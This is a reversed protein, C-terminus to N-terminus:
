ALSMCPQCSATIVNEGGPCAWRRLRCFAGAYVLQYWCSNFWAQHGDEVACLMALAHEASGAHCSCVRQSHCSEAQRPRSSSASDAVLPLPLPSPRPAPHPTCVQLRARDEPTLPYTGAKLILAQRQLMNHERSMIQMFAKSGSFYLFSGRCAVVHQQADAVIHEDQTCWLSTPPKSCRACFRGTADTLHRLIPLAAKKVAGAM